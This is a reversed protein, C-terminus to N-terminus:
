LHRQVPVGVQVFNGEFKGPKRGFCVGLAEYLALEDMDVLRQKIIEATPVYQVDKGCVNVVSVATIGKILLLVAGAGASLGFNVDYASTQGGRVLHGPTVERIEPLEYVGPTFMYSKKMFERIDDDKKMREELQKRV